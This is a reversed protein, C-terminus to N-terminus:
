YLRAVTFNGLPAFPMEHQLAVTKDLTGLFFRRSANTQCVALMLKQGPALAFAIKNKRLLNDELYFCADRVSYRISLKIGAAGTITWYIADTVEDPIIWFHKSFTAPISVPWSVFTTDKLRVGQGYRGQGYTVGRADTAAVNAVSVTTGGLTWGDIEGVGLGRYTAIQYRATTSASNGTQTWQRTADPSKWSFPATSWLTSDQYVSEMNTFMSNRAHFRGDLSVKFIYESRAVGASMVLNGDVISVGHRVGSFATAKQDNSFILNTNSASAISTQVFTAVESYVGPMAVAKIWFRRTGASGSPISLSNSKSQAILNSASWSSGERVEYSAINQEPNALWRFELRNGAQVCDFQAVSAPATLVLEFAAVNVSYTGGAGMARIFYRYTGAFDQDLTLMTGSFGTTIVVGSEWSAGLRIEYGVLYPETNPSWTALLDNAREAINFNVVDACPRTSGVVTHTLVPATAEPPSAGLADNSIVKFSVTDGNQCEVTAIDKANSAIIQYAAGNISAKVTSGVYSEQRSYFSVTVQVVFGSGRVQVLESVGSIIAHVAESPLSSYNPTPAAMGSFDYCSENYEICSLERKYEHTGSIMRVRFPKKVKNVEGFMWNIFQGPAVSFPSMPTLVLRQGPIAVVDREEIVDTDWLEYTAGATYNAGEVVVGWKGLGADFIGLVARDIGGTKIRKVSSQGNWGTLVLSDGTVSAISGQARMISDLKLLLKYQKGDLIEVTRDLVISSTTSGADTRGAFGWQPMDHQVLIVDGVVCAISEIPAAFEVTQLIHRNMNLQFFGEKYAKEKDTVGILTVQAPRQRDGRAAAVSDVVRVTRQKYFDEKDYYTVDIENARDNVSLWQQKFSGEIINGVGFMMTPKAPREIAVTYRTGVNVVQAHGCRFIPQLSDWINGSTDFVGDFTLDNDDCFAGWEKFMPLDFRTYSMSAGYRKHTLADLVIWAPNRSSRVVWTRSSRDFQHLQRGGNLFTVTPVSSLQESLQIKLGVLATNVYAVDDMVIENIDSVGAEDQIYASTSDPTLRMIRTEYIGEVLVPSYVSRRLASSVNESVTMGPAYIPISEFYGVETEESPGYTGGVDGSIEYYVGPQMKYIKGTAHDARYPYAADYPLSNFSHVLLPPNPTSYSLIGWADYVDTPPQPVWYHYNYNYGITRGDGCDIWTGSGKRSVQILFDLRIGSRTGTNIDTSGLGQPFVLDFRVRDVEGKTEFNVWQNYPLTRNVSRPTVTDAFWPIMAQNAEGTRTIVEVGAFSSIPQDNVRLDSLSTVPGEGANLLMYLNQTAGSNEVFMNLVNGAMRFTGYCLPVAIGELSTNKPGDVGYSPGTGVSSGAATPGTGATPKAPPLMANVLMSGAMTIGASMAGIVMGANAMVLTGGMTTYLSSALMPAFYAIAIMAVLRLINKGGGGGGGGMPVPCIVLNDTKDLYTKDMDEIEVPRGNISVVHEVMGMPFYAALSKARSWVLTERVCDRPDFPNVIRIVPILVETKSKTKIASM